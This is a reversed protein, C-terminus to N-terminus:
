TKRTTPPTTRQRHTHTHTHRTSRKVVIAKAPLPETRPVQSVPLPPVLLQGICSITKNIPEQARILVMRQAGVRQKPVGGWGDDGVSNPLLTQGRGGTIAIYVVCYQCHCYRTFALYAIHRVEARYSLPIYQVVLAKTPLPETRPVQSVPPPTHATHRTEASHCARTQRELLSM